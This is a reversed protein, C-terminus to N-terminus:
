AAIEAASPGRTTRTPGELVGFDKVVVNEFHPNTGIGEYIDTRKYAEMAERSQWVYLGGYTNTEPDALWTKSVLGPLNAFAPAIADAVGRYEEEGMDKLNFNVVLVHM